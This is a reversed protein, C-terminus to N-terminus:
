KNEVVIAGSSFEFYQALFSGLDQYIQDFLVICKGSDLEVFAKFEFESPVFIIKFYKVKSFKHVSEIYFFLRGLSERLNHLVINLSKANKNKKLFIEIDKKHLICVNERV